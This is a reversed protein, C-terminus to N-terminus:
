RFINKITEIFTNEDNTVLDLEEFSKTKVNKNSSFETKYGKVKLRYEGGGRGTYEASENIFSDDKPINLHGAKNELEITANTIGYKEGSQKLDSSLENELNFLNPVSYSFTLKEIKGQYKDVLSWFEKKDVIPHISIAYGLSFLTTNLYDELLKLQSEPKFFVTTNYEFAIQQGTEPNDDTNFIINCYPYHTEVEESFDNDTPVNRKISSKKGLKGYIFKGTEKHFLYIM